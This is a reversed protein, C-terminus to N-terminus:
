SSAANEMMIGEPFCFKEKATKEPIQSDFYVAKM